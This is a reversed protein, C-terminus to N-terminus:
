FSMAVGELHRSTTTEDRAQLPDNPYLRNVNQRTVLQHKVFLASPVPKRRLRNMALPIVAEGYSEPFYAVSGILCSNRTRMESRAELSANQGMVACNQVRGAQEFARVAGIASSDNAASLLVRRLGRSKLHKRVTKLSPETRGKGDLAVVQSDSIGPLLERIGALMGSRRANTLVGAAPTELLLVEDVQGNWHRIAWDALYRGSILGARYYDAGYYTAGPLPTEVAIIPIGADHLLSSIASGNAPDAGFQIVLDVRERVFVETNRIAGKPSQSNNLILLDIQEQFAARQISECVTKAFSSDSSQIGYGIRYKGQKPSRFTLRYAHNETREVLGGRELTFLIRYATSKSLGARNSVDCLRLTEADRGFARLIDCARAIAEVLYPGTNGTSSRPEASMIYFAHVVLRSLALSFAPRLFNECESFM